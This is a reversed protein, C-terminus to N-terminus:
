QKKMVARGYAPDALQDGNFDIPSPLASRFTLDLYGNSMIVYDLTDVQGSSGLMLTSGTAAATGLVTQGFLSLVAAGDATLALQITASSPAAILDIHANPNAVSTLTFSCAPSCSPQAVWTGVLSAPVPDAPGSGDGGCGAILIGLVVLGSIRM